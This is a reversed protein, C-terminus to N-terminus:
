PVSIASNTATMSGEARLGSSSTAVTSSPPSSYAATCYSSTSIFGHGHEHRRVSHVALLEESRHRLEVLIAQPLSRRADVRWTRRKAAVSCSRALASTSHCPRRSSFSTSVSTRNAVLRNINLMPDNRQWAPNSPPGWMDVALYGGADKMALGIWTPWL